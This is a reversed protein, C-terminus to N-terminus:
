IAPTLPKDEKYGFKATLEARANIMLDQRIFDDLAAILTLKDREFPARNTLKQSEFCDLYAMVIRQALNHGRDALRRVEVGNRRLWEKANEFTM